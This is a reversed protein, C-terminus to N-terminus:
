DRGTTMLEEVTCWGEPDLKVDSFEFNHRVVYALLRLAPRAEHRNAEPACESM